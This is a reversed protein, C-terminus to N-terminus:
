APAGSGLGQMASLREFTLSIIEESLEAGGKGDGTVQVHVTLHNVTGGGAGSGGGGAANGAEVMPSRGLQRSAQAVEGQGGQIGQAMGAAVNKFGPHKKSM